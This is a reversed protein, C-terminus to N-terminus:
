RLPQQLHLRHKRLQQILRPNNLSIPHTQHLQQQEPIQDVKHRVRQLDVKHLAVQHVGMKDVTQLFLKVLQHFLFRHELHVPDLELPFLSRRELHVRDLELPFLFRRGQHELPLVRVWILNM